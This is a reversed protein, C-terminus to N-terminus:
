NANTIATKSNERLIDSYLSQYQRAQAKQSYKEIALQRCNKAMIENQNKNELLQVIASKLANIDHSPALLGTIDPRVLDHIGGVDFGVVPVGCAMAELATLGFSEQLSPIVFVDASSYALSLLRDNEIHGLCLQPLNSRVTINNSGISVLLLNSINDIRELANILVEFGKRKNNMSDAAFLVVKSDHPIEFANRALSIDRPSFVNIDVGCPIIVIPFKSLLASRRAEDALWHSNAVITLKQPPIKSYTQKKRFWIKYSLDKKINSGLQPCKGCSKYYKQCYGDYHCGGTFSNMDHLTWVLPRHKTTRPFFFQYDVYNAIWHLNIIDCSPIKNLLDSYYPSRDDSFQEYGFPRSKRYRAFNLKILLSRQHRRLRKLFKSSPSFVKVSQDDTSRNVVLMSSKVDLDELAKHLRYAARAAGGKKDYTGLHLIKMM